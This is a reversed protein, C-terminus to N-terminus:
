ARFYVGESRLLSPIEQARKQQRLANWHQEMAVLNRPCLPSVVIRIALVVFNGPHVPLLGVLIKQSEGCAHDGQPPLMGRKLAAAVKESLRNMPRADGTRQAGHLGVQDQDVGFPLLSM